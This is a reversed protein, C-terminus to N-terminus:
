RYMIFTSVSVCVCVCMTETGKGIIVKFMIIYSWTGLISQMLTIHVYIIVLQGWHIETCLSIWFKQAVQKEVSWPVPLFKYDSLSPLHYTHLLRHLHSHGWKHCPKWHSDLRALCFSKGSKRSLIRRQQNLTKWVQKKERVQGDCCCTYFISLVNMDRFVNSKYM